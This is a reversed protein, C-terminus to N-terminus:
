MYYYIFIDEGGAHIREFYNINIAPMEFKM